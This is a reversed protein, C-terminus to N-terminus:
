QQLQFTVSSTHTVFVRMVCSSRGRVRFPCLGFRRNQLLPLLMVVVSFFGGLVLATLAAGCYQKCYKRYSILAFFLAKKKFLCLLFEFRGLGTVQEVRCVIHQLM